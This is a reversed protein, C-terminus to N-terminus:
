KNAVKPYAVCFKRAFNQYETEAQVCAKAWDMSGAKQLSILQRNLRQAGNDLENIKKTIDQQIMDRNKYSIDIAKETTKGTREEMERGAEFFAGCIQATLPDDGYVKKEIEGSVNGWNQADTAKIKGSLAQLDDRKKEINRIRKEYSAIFKDRQEYPVVAEASKESMSESKMDSKQSGMASVFSRGAMVIAFLVVALIIKKM